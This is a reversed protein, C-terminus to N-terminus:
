TIRSNSDFAMVTNFDSGNINVRIHGQAFDKTRQCAKTNSSSNLVPNYSKSRIFFPIISFSTQNVRYPDTFSGARICSGCGYCISRLVHNRINNSCRAISRHAFEAQAPINCNFTM